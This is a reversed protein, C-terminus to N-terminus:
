ATRAALWALIVLWGLLLVISVMLLPKNPRPPDVTRPSEAHVSPQDTSAPNGVTVIANGADAPKAHRDKHKNGKAM